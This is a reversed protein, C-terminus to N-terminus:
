SLGSELVIPFYLLFSPLRLYLILFLISYTFGLWVFLYSGVIEKSVQRVTNELTDEDVLVRTPDLVNGEM